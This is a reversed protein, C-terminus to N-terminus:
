KSGSPRGFLSINELKFPANFLKVEAYVEAVLRAKLPLATKSEFNFVYSNGGGGYGRRSLETKVGDAVLYVAKLSDKNVNLKLDIQQSGDKKWGEQISKIQAGLETGQAPSKLETFGLDVEKTASSVQYQLRGSLEKLGKVNPGPLTFDAEFLASAKDDSLKPFRIKRKWESSPLVDTGDDAIATEFGSEDTVSLISGPFDAQLVLTYGADYNFPRFEKGKSKLDAVWRAGVVKVGKLPEGKAPAAVSVAVSGLGLQQRTKATEKKAAAVERPYDFLPKNGATIVARVPARNGFVLENVQDDMAPKDTGGLSDHNKAMWEDDGLLKELVAMLKEGTFKLELAGAADKSFNSSDSVKGPLHFIVDHKMSGMFATFMPKMQQFKAREQKLKQTRQEPTFKTWDEPEKRVKFGEKPESKNTRLSLVANGGAKQWEFELMSQNPVEFRALNTFYATGKFFLRGDDLRKYSVDRWAEVGKASTMVKGVAEKLAEETVDNDGTLNVNQFSCEHIVKGSGDPNLTFEDKTEFCGTLLMLACVSVAM